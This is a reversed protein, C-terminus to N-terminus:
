LEIRRLTIRLMQDVPPPENGADDPTFVRVTAGEDDGGSRSGPQELGYGFPENPETGADYLRAFSTIDGEVPLGEEFLPMRLGVFADNSVGLMTVFHLDDGEVADFETTFAGGPLLPDNGYTVEAFEAPISVGTGSAFPTPDGEEALFSLASGAMEGEVFLPEDVSAKVWGPTFAATYSGGPGELPDVSVNEVVLEFRVPAVDTACGVLLTLALLSAFTLPRAAIGDMM